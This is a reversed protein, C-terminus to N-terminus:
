YIDIAERRVDGKLGIIIERHVQPNLRASMLSLVQVLFIQHDGKNKNNIEPVVVMMMLEEITCVHDTLGTAM